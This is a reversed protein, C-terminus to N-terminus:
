KNMLDKISTNRTIKIEHTQKPASTFSGENPVDNNQPKPFYTAGYDRKILDIAKTDDKEEAYMTNRLKIVNDFDKSEFGQSSLELKLNAVGLSKSTEVNKEQLDNYTKELTNYKTELESYKTTSEKLAENRANEVESELVYGKRLDKELKEINFDDNSLEIDKNKQYKTIDM